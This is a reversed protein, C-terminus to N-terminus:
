IIFTFQVPMLRLKASFASQPPIIIATCPGSWYEDDGTSGFDCYLTSIKLESKTNMNCYVVNKHALLNYKYAKLIHHCAILIVTEHM